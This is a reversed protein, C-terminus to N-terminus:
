RRRIANSTTGPRQSRACCRCASSSTDCGAADEDGGYAGGVSAGCEGDSDRIARGGIRRVDAEDDTLLDIVRNSEIGLGAVVRSARVEQLRQTRAAGERALVRFRATATAHLDAVVPATFERSRHERVSEEWAAIWDKANALYENADDTAREFELLQRRGDSVSEIRFLPRRAIRGRAWSGRWQESIGEHKRDLKHDLINIDIHQHNM